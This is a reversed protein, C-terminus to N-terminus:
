RRNYQLGGTGTELGCMMLHEVGGLKLIRFNINGEGCEEALIETVSSPALYVTRWLLAPPLDLLGAIFTLGAGLHCFLAIYGEGPSEQAYWAEGRRSIGFRQLLAKTGERMEKWREPFCTQMLLPDQLFDPNEMKKLREPALNWVALDPRRPDWVTVDDMERLWPLIEATKKQEGMALAATERARGLPSSFFYGEGGAWPLGALAGAQRRGEETLRDHEYDPEGHRIVFIKM